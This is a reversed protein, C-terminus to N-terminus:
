ARVAAEAMSEWAVGEPEREPTAAEETGGLQAGARGPARPAAGIQKAQFEIAPHTRGNQLYLCTQVLHPPEWRREAHLDM